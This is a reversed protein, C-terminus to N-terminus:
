KKMNEHGLDQDVEQLMRYWYNAMQDITYEFKSLDMTHLDHLMHYRLVNMYM